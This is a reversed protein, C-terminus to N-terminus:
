ETDSASVQAEMRRAMPFLINNELHVHEHLDREFTELEQLCVRYTTCADDPPRYGSTLERIQAMATGASEHEAEMMRIPNEVSGFPAASLGTGTAVSSALHVIFPFLIREEKMMHTTMESAVGEFLRAVQELEPHRHGHVDAIKRTRGLLSPIAQRVYAHHNAIIYSVLAPPDWTNFRPVGCAPTALVNDLEDLLASVNVGANRCGEDITRRGQCCFDVGYHDFVSAARHDATVIEGITMDLRATM